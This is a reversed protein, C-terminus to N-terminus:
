PIQIDCGGGSLQLIDDEIDCVVERIPELAIAGGPREAWDDPNMLPSSFFRSLEFRAAKGVYEYDLEREIDKPLNAEAEALADELRTRYQGLFVALQENTM